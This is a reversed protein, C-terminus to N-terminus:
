AREDGSGHASTVHSINSLLMELIQITGADPIGAFSKIKALAQQAVEQLLKRKAPTDSVNAANQLALAAHYFVFPQELSFRDKLWELDAVRPTMQMMAIAALRSGASGSAKYADVYNALSPALLRMKAIVRTMARTREYGSPLSRRLSDYELCLRDLENLLPQLGVEQTQIEIRAAAEVQRATIKGNENQSNDAEAAVRDLELNIGVLTAKRVKDLLIPIRSLIPRLENRFLAILALFTIPWAIAGILAAMATLLKASAEM